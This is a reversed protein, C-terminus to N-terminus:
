STLWGVGGWGATMALCDVWARRQDASPQNEIGLSGAVRPGVELFDQEGLASM